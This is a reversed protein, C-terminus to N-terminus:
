RRVLPLEITRREGEALSFGIARERIRALFDPDDGEGEELGDVAVALYRAAAPLGVVRFAGRADTTV